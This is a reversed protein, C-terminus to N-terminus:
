DSRNPDELSVGCSSMGQGRGNVTDKTREKVKKTERDRLIGTEDNNEIEEKKMRQVTEM